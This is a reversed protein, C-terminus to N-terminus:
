NLKNFQAIYNTYDELTDIDILNATFTSLITNKQNKLMMNKAGKDGNIHALENWYIRPFIAPVGPSNNYSSAIIKQRNQNWLARLKKLYKMEIAPQDGLLVFVAKFPANVSKFYAIGSKISESLGKHYNTNHIYNINSLRISKKVEKFNEGLTCFTAKPAIELAKELVVQLMPKDAIKLLQKDTKMRSSKGAALVLIAIESM